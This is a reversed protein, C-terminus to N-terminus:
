GASYALYIGALLMLVGFVRRLILAGRSEESWNLYRQVLGASTGAFVIVSCHGLGYLLLLTVGYGFRTGSLNFVVGLVPAMFAFTCPGLATGFVLGLVFAAVLGRRKMRARAAGSWPAPLLGVLHLGVVLFVAAVLYNGYPGLDGMIRGAAATVAGIAAITALIGAAFVSSVAFARRASVRGQEDIFAVLLPVSALHCPSLVVSLVGWAFSAALAILPAAGLAHTLKAFLEQM